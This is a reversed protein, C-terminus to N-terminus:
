PTVARFEVLHWENELHPCLWRRTASGEDFDLSQGVPVPVEKREDSDHRQLIAIYRAEISM